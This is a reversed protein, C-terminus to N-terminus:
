QSCCRFGFNLAANERHFWEEEFCSSYGEPSMFSGGRVQCYDQRGTSGDCSDEFEWVNGNLDYVGAYGPEPSQCQALSGVLTLGVPERDADNCKSGYDYKDGYTYYYKAGSSCANYWQSKSPDFYDEFGNPGGGIKGCLRKGVGKCYAFADCWDVCGVPLDGDKVPPFGCDPGTPAFDTNWACWADQGEVPPNTDLWAQYQCRTVETADISYGRPMAVMAAVTGGSCGAEGGQGAGGDTVDPGNGSVDGGCAVLAASAVVFLLTRGNM